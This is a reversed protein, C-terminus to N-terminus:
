SSVSFKMNSEKQGTVAYEVTIKSWSKIPTVHFCYDKDKKALTMSIGEVQTAILALLLSVVLHVRM